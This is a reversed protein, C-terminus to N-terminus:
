GELSYYIQGGVGEFIAGEYEEWNMGESERMDGSVLQIFLANLEVDSWAAIEADSWAGASKAWERMAQLKDASDLLNFDADKAAQWTIRGANDGLEAASASYTAPDAYKYFKTVNIEM